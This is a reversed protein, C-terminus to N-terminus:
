GAPRASRGLCEELSKRGARDPVHDLEDRAQKNIQDIPLQSDPNGVPLAEIMAVAGQPDIGAKARILPGTYMIRRLSQASLAQTVFVDAVQRDYRALLIAAAAVRPDAVGRQRALDSRPILAVARWFVEELREPVVKEVIPLIMAAPNAGSMIPRTGPKEVQPSDLMRDITQISEALALQAAPRDREALGLSLLAWGCAQKGPTKMGAIMRRALEPDSKALRRCLRLAVHDRDDGLFVETSDDVLGFGREAEAPHEIALSEAIAVYLARRDVDSFDKVLSLVREADTRAATALFHTDSRWPIRLKPVLELGTRILPRAKDVEGLNLWGEALTTLKHLRDISNAEGVDAAKLQVSATELYRRKRDRDGTPLAAALTAYAWSRQAPQAIADVILEAEGPDTALREIAVRTRIAANGSPDGLFNQDLLKLM